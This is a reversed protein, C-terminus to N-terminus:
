RAAEGSARRTGLIYRGLISKGVARAVGFREALQDALLLYKEHTGLGMHEHEVHQFAELLRQQDDETLTQDAM